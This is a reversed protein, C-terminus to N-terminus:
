LLLFVCLYVFWYKLVEEVFLVVVGLFYVCFWCCCVIFLLWHALLCCGIVLFYVLYFCVCELVIGVELFFFVFGSVGCLGRGGFFGFVGLM